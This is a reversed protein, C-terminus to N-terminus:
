GVGRLDAVMAVVVLQFDGDAFFVDGRLVTEKLVREAAESTDFRFLYIGALPEIEFEEGAAQSEADVSLSELGM